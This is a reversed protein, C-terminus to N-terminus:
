DLWYLYSLMYFCEGVLWKLMELSGLKSPDVEPMVLTWAERSKMNGVIEEEGM